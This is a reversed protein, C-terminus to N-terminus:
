MTAPLVEALDRGQDGSGAPYGFVGQGHGHRDGGPTAAIVKAMGPSVCALTGIPSAAIAIRSAPLGRPTRWAPANKEAGVYANTSAMNRSM